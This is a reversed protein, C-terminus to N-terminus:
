EEPKEVSESQETDLQAQEEEMKAREAKSIYKPKNNKHMRANKKKHKALLSDKVRKKRSM